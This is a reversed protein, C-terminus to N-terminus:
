LNNETDRLEMIYSQINNLFLDSNTVGAGLRAEKEIRLITTNRRQLKNKLNNIEAGRKARGVTGWYWFLAGTSCVLLISLFILMAPM